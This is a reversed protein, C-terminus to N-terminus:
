RKIRMAVFRERLGMECTFYNVINPHLLLGL